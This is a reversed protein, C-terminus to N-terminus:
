FHMQVGGLNTGHTKAINGFFLYIFLDIYNFM